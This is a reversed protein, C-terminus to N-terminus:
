SELIIGIIKNNEFKFEMQEHKLNSKIEQNVTKPYYKIGINDFLLNLSSSSRIKFNKEQPSNLYKIFENISLINNKVTRNM